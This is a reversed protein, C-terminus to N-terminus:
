KSKGKLAGVTPKTVFLANLRYFQKTSPRNTTFSITCVTLLEDRYLSNVLICPRYKPSAIPLWRCDDWQMPLNKYSVAGFIYSM